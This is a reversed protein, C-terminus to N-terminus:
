ISFSLCFLLLGPIAGFYSWKVAVKRVTPMNPMRTRYWITATVPALISFFFGFALWKLKWGKTLDPVMYKNNGYVMERYKM